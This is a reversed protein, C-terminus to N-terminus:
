SAEAWTASSVCSASSLDARPRHFETKQAATIPQNTRSAIVKAALSTPAILLAPPVDIETKVLASLEFHASATIRMEVTPWSKQPRPHRVLADRVHYAKERSRAIGPHPMQLRTSLLRTGTHDTSAEAAKASMM